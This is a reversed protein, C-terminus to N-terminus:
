DRIAQSVHDYAHGTTKSHSYPYVDEQDSSDLVHKKKLDRNSTLSDYEISNKLESNSLSDLSHQPTRLDSYYAVAADSDVTESITSESFESSESM